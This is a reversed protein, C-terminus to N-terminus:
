APLRDQLGAGKTGSRCTDVVQCIDQDLSISAPADM